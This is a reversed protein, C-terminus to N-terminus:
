GMRELIALHEEHYIKKERAIKDHYGENEVVPGDVVPLPKGRKAYYNRKKQESIREKNRLYYEKNSELTEKKTYNKLKIM